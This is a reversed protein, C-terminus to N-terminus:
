KNLVLMHSFDAYLIALYFSNKIILFILYFYFFYLVFLIYYYFLLIFDSSCLFIDLCKSVNKSILCFNPVFKDTDLAFSCVHHIIGNVTNVPSFCVPQEASAWSSSILFHYLCKGQPFDCLPWQTSYLVFDEVTKM